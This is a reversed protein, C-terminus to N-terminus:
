KTMEELGQWRQRYIAAEDEFQKRYSDEANFEKAIAEFTEVAALCARRYEKVDMTKFCQRVIDQILGHLRDGRREQWIVTNQMRLFAVERIFFYDPKDKLEPMVKKLYQQLITPDFWDLVSAWWLGRDWPAPIDHFLHQSIFPAVAQICLEKKFQLLPLTSPWRDAIYAALTESLLPHGFSFELVTDVALHLDKTELTPNNKRLVQETLARSADVPTIPGLTLLRVTRRLEFRRWPVPVRGAYVQRVKREIVLPEAIYLHVWDWFEVDNQLTETTDFMLYVPIQDALENLQIVISEAGEENSRGNLRLKGGAQELLTQLLAAPRDPVSQILAINLIFVLARPNRKQLRLKAEQLLRSKGIGAEGYVDLLINDNSALDCIIQLPEDRNQFPFSM